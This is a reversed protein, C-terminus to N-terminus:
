ALGYGSGSNHNGGREISSAARGRNGMELDERWPEPEAYDTGTAEALVQRRAESALGTPVGHGPFGQRRRKSRRVPAVPLSEPADPGLVPLEDGEDDGFWEDAMSM